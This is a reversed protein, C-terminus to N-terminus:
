KNEAAGRDIVFVEDLFPRDWGFGASRVGNKIYHLDWMPAEPELGLQAFAKAENLMPVDRSEDRVKFILRRLRLEAGSRSCLSLQELRVDTEGPPRKLFERLSIMSQSRRGKRDRRDEQQRRRERETAVLLLADSLRALTMEAQSRMANVDAEVGDLQEMTLNSLDECWEARSKQLMALIQKESLM